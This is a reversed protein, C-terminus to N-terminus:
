LAAVLQARVPRPPFVRRRAANGRIRVPDEDFYGYSESAEQDAALTEV